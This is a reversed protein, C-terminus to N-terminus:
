PGLYNVTAIIKLNGKSRTRAEIGVGWIGSKKIEPDTYPTNWTVDDSNSEKLRINWFNRWITEMYAIDKGSVNRVNVLYKDNPLMVYVNDGVLNVGVHECEVVLQRGDNAEHTKCESPANHTVYVHEFNKSQSTPMKVTATPLPPGSESPSATNAAAERGSHVQDGSSSCAGLALVAVAGIAFTAVANARTKM